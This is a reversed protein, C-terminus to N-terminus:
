DSRQLPEREPADAPQTRNQREGQPAGDDDLVDTRLPLNDNGHPSHDDNM